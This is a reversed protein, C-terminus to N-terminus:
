FADISVVIPRDRVGMFTLEDICPTSPHRATMPKLM